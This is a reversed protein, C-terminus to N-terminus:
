EVHFVEPIEMWWAGPPCDPVPEQMPDTHTWWEKTVPDAAMLAMDANFDNGVYEMYAFLITNYRFISYNRINCKRITDVVGPWVEAHIREYADIAESKVGIIRAYRKM